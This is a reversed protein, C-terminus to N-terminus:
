SKLLGLFSTVEIDWNKPSHQSPEHHADPHVWATKAGAQKAVALNDAMDDIVLVNEAQVHEVAFLQSLTDVCPKPTYQNFRIDYIESFYQTIGLANLITEAHEKTGNTHIVKRASMAQLVRHLEPHPQLLEHAQVDHAEKLFPEADHGHHVMLGKLTSGYKKWYKIRIDDAENHDM